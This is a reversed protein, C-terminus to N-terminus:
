RKHAEAWLSLFKEPIRTPRKREIDIFYGSQSASAHLKEPTRIEFSCEWQSKSVNSLWVYGTPSDQISLPYKYHVHTEALVPSKNEQYLSQFPYYTDLFYMRLDELWRVFVINSVIGLVDIDYGQIKIEKELLLPKISESM